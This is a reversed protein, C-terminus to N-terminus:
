FHLTYGIKVGNINTGAAMLGIDWAGPDFLSIKTNNPKHYFFPLAFGLGIGVATLISGSLIMAENSRVAEAYDNEYKRYQAATSELRRNQPYTAEGVIILVIGIAEVSGSIWWRHDKQIASGIGFAMNLAGTKLREGITYDQYFSVGADVLFSNLTKDEKLSTRYSVQYTFSEVDIANVILRFSDSSDRSFTGTIISGAGLFHGMLKASEESVFGSMQFDLENKAAQLEVEKRPVVQFAQTNVLKVILEDVVYDSIGVIDTTINLVAIKTGQPVSNLVSKAAEDIATDITINQAFIVTGSVIGILLWSLLFLKKKM